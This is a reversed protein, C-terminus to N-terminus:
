ALVRSSIRAALPVSREANSFRTAALVCRRGRMPLSSRSVYSDISCSIAKSFASSSFASSSSVLAAAEALTTALSASSLACTAAM